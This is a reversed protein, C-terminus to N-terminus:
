HHEAGVSGGHIATLFRLTTITTALERWKVCVGLSLRSDSWGALGTGTRITMDLESALLLMMDVAASHAVCAVATVASM